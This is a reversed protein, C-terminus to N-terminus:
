GIKYIFFSHKNFRRPRPDHLLDLQFMQFLTIRIMKGRKLFIRGRILFDDGVDILSLDAVNFTPHASFNEHFIMKYANNNIRELVQYPDDGRPHLKTKRQSSFWEKRFHIWVWNSPQFIIENRGKNIRSAVNFNQKEITENGDKHLTKIENANSTAAKSVFINSSLFCILVRLHILDMFLKLFLVILPMCEDWSKINKCTIARLLTAYM